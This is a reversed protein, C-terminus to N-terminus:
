ITDMKTLPNKLDVVHLFLDALHPNAIRHRAREALAALYGGKSQVRGDIDM